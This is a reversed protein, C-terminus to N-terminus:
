QAAEALLRKVRSIAGDQQGSAVLGKPLDGAPDSYVVYRVDAGDSTATFTWRGRVSMVVCGKCPTIEPRTISEFRWELTRTAENWSRQLQLVYTRDSALAIKVRDHFVLRDPSRELVERQLRDDMLTAFRGRFYADIREVSVPTHTTVQLEKYPQGDLVRAQLTLGDKTRVTEWEGAAFFAVILAVEM